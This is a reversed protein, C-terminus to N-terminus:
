SRFNYLKNKFPKMFTGLNTKFTNINTVVKLISPLRNWAHSAVSFFTNDLHKDRIAPLDYLEGRKSTHPTNAKSPMCERILSRTNKTHIKHFHYVSLFEIRKSINEWGLEDYLRARSTFKM